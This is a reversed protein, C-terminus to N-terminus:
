KRNVLSRFEILCVKRAAETYYDTERDIASFIDNMENKLNSCNKIVDVDLAYPITDSSFNQLDEPMVYM